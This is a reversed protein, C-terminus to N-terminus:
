RNDKAAREEFAARHWRMYARNSQSLKVRANRSLGIKELSRPKLSSCVVLRGKEDFTILHRDFLADIKAALLLGNNPDLRERNDSERWPKIHSARLVPEVDLRTLVCKGGWAKVLAERFRGQGLRANVLRRKTTADLDSKLVNEIDRAKSSRDNDGVNTANTTVNRRRWLGGEVDQCYFTRNDKADSHVFGYRACYSVYEQYLKNHGPDDSTLPSFGAAIIAPKFRDTVPQQNAPYGDITNDRAGCWKVPAFIWDGARRFAVQHTANKVRARHFEREAANGRAMDHLRLLNEIVEASGRSGRVRYTLM